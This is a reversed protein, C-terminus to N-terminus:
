SDILKLMEDVIFNMAPSDRMEPQDLRDRRTLTMKSYIDNEDRILTLRGDKQLYEDVAGVQGGFISYAPVHLAAAERIMTGGGSIVLDSHWVLNLGDVVQDPIIMKRNKFYEKWEKKIDEGQNKTRPLVVVVSNPQDCVYKIALEFLEDSKASHYHAFTAPPRLTILIDDADVSLTDLIGPDTKINNIYVDEKIGPYKITRDAKRQKLVEDPLIEPVIELNPQFFPLTQSFEYDDIHVVPIGFIKGIIFQSRSGHSVALDPKQRLVFPIMRFARWLLGLGKILKYKGYHRGIKQYEIGFMDALGVVQGFDRVSVPVHYGREKLEKIIPDFFFVHPSNDLDIWVTPKKHSMVLNTRVHL